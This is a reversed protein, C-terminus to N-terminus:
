FFQNILALLLFLAASIYNSKKVNKFIKTFYYGILLILLSTLSFSIVIKIIPEAYVFNLSILTGDLSHSLTLLITEIFSLKEKYNKHEQEKYSRWALFLYLITALTKTMFTFQFYYYLTLFFTYILINGIAITLVNTKTIKVKALQLSIGIILGDLSAVISNLFLFM